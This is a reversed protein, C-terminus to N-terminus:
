KVNERERLRSNNTFLAFYFLKHFRRLENFVFDFRKNDFEFLLLYNYNYNYYYKNRETSHSSIKVGKKRITWAFFYYNLKFQNPNMKNEGKQGRKQKRKPSEREHPSRHNNRKHYKKNHIVVCFFLSSRVKLQLKKQKKQQALKAKKEFFDVKAQQM